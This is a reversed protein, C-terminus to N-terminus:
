SLFEMVLSDVEEQRERWFGHGVGNFCQIKSNPIKEAMEVSKKPSMILDRDGYMVLTEAKIGSVKDLIDHGECAESQGLYGKLVEEDEPIESLFQKIQEINKEIYDRTYGYFLATIWVAKMGVKTAIERGGSLLIDGVEDRSASSCGIVLKNVREPYKIGIWQTIMGGMSKGIFSTNGVGLSDLLGVTDDAMDELTFGPETIESRGIGRNDFIIVKFKKAYIPIQTEWSGLPSGLGSILVVPKGDGYTEYYLKIRNSEAIPM